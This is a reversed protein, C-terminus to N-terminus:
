QRVEKDEVEVQSRALSFSALGSCEARAVSRWLQHQGDVVIREKQKQYCIYCCTNRCTWLNKPFSGAFFPSNFSISHLKSLHHWRHKPRTLMITGVMWVSPTFATRMRTRYSALRPSIMVTNNLYLILNFNQQLINQKAIFSFGLLQFCFSYRHNCIYM